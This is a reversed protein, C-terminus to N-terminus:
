PWSPTIKLHFLQDAEPSIVAPANFVLPYNKRGHGFLDSRFVPGNFSQAFRTLAYEIKPDGSFEGLIVATVGKLRGGVQLQTLLRDIKYGPENVDEMFLIRGAAELPWPTGVSAALCTLNGGTISARIPQKLDRAAQNFAELGGYNLERLRGSLLAALLRFNDRDKAPDNMEKLMAGHVTQWGARVLFLHLFTLDSYGVFIKQKSKAPKKLGPLLRGAGYGGRVAWVVRGQSDNLAQDLLALRVEDSNANYPVLGPAIAGPPFVAGLEAALARAAELDRGDLGSAPAVVTLGGKARIKALDDQFVQEGLLAPPGSGRGACGGFLLLWLLLPLILVSKWATRPTFFVM